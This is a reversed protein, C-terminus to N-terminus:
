RVSKKKEENCQFSFFLYEDAVNTLPDIKEILYNVGKYSFKAKKLTDLDAPTHPIGKDTLEQTPIIFEADVQVAEVPLEGLTPSLKIRGVLQIPALYKKAVTEKYVTHVVTANTDMM